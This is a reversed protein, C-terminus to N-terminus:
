VILFDCIYFVICKSQCNYYLMKILLSKYITIYIYIYINTFTHAIFIMHFILVQTSVVVLLLYKPELEIQWDKVNKVLSVAPIISSVYM